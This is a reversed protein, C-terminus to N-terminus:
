IKDIGIPKGITQIQHNDVVAVDTHLYNIFDVYHLDQPVQSPVLARYNRKSKLKAEEVFEGNALIRQKPDDKEVLYGESDVCIGFADLIFRRSTKDFTIVKEM